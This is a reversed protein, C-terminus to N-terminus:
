RGASVPKGASSRRGLVAWTSGVLGVVVLGAVIWRWPFPGSLDEEALLPERALLLAKGDWRTRLTDLPLTYERPPDVLRATNEGVEAINIFHNGDIHAICVFRGARWSLREPTTSVGLTHAGYDKAVNQLQALSYGETASPQGLKQEIEDYSGVPYDLAKLGVYLCYGGCRLDPTEKAPAAAVTAVLLLCAAHM